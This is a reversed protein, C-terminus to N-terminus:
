LSSLLERPEADPGTADHNVSLRLLPVLSAVAVILTMAVILVGGGFASLGGLEAGAWLSQALVWGIM